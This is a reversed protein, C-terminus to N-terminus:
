CNFGRPQQGFPKRRLFRSLGCYLRVRGLQDGTEDLHMGMIFRTDRSGKQLNCKPSGLFNDYTGNM